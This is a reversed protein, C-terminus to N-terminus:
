SKEGFINLEPKRRKLLSTPHLQVGIKFLFVEFVFVQFCLDSFLSRFVFVRFRLGSFSSVFVFVRFRLGSFSSGKNEKGIIIISAIYALHRYSGRESIPNKGISM